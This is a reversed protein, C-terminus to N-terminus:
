ATTASPRQVDVGRECITKELTDLDIGPDIGLIMPKEPETEIILAAVTQDELTVTELCCRLIKEWKWTRRGNGLVMVLEKEQVFFRPSCMRLVRPQIYGILIGLGLSSLLAVTFPPPTKGPILWAQAWLAMAMASIVLAVIPATWPSRRRDEARNRSEWVIRPEDWKLYTKPILWGM